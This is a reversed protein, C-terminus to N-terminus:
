GFAAVRPALAAPMIEVLEGRAGDDDDRLQELRDDGPIAPRERRQCFLREVIAAHLDREAVHRLRQPFAGGAEVRNEEVDVVPRTREGLVAVGPEVVVRAELDDAARQFRGADERDPRRPFVPFELVPEAVEAEVGLADVDARTQFFAAAAM